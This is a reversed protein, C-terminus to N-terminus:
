RSTRRSSAPPSSGASMNPSFSARTVDESLRHDVVFDLEYADM